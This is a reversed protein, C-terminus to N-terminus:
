KSNRIADQIKMLTEEIIRNQKQLKKELQGNIDLLEEVTEDNSGSYSLPPMNEMAGLMEDLNPKFRIHGCREDCMTPPSDFVCM